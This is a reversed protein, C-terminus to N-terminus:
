FNFIDNAVKDVKQKENMEQVGVEKGIKGTSNDVNYIKSGVEGKNKVIDIEIQNKEPSSLMVVAEPVQYSASGGKLDEMKPKKPLTGLGEQKRIHHVVIFIINQELCISKWEQLVRKMEDVTNGSSPLISYDLHDVIVVKVGFFRKAKEVVTKVETTSPLSFYLPLDILDPIIKGWGEDSLEILEDETKDARIQIFRGGVTKTGREFPLVLTPIRRSVLENAINMVYSTKGIGSVGSVMVMWDDDLKVFPMCGLQLRTEGKERISEIVDSLGAYEYKYFPKAGKILARYDDPTYQKFYDNADKIGEPYQVEFSKDTGIRGSMEIASKKGGKDNDFAIYVKPISDILELWIGYSEKGSSPSIVNKFGAQWASMADFQGEVILVGGKQKGIDIGEENFIWVESGKEQSYRIRANEDLHRYKINVLEGRKYEPIAIANRVDDYGLKFYKITEESLGRQIQLYDLAQHTEWLNKIYGNLKDVSPRIYSANVSDRISSIKSQFKTM